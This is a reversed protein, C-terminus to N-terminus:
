YLWDCRNGDRRSITPLGRSSLLHPSLHARRYRWDFNRLPQTLQPEFLVGVCKAIVCDIGLNQWGEGGIIQPIDADCQNPM